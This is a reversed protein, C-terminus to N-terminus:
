YHLRKLQKELIMLFKLAREREKSSGDSRSQPMQSAQSFSMFNINNAEMDGMTQTNNVDQEDMNNIEENRAIDDAADALGEADNGNACDKRYVLCLDEYYSFAKYKFTAVKHSSKEAHVLKKNPDWGFGNTLIEHVIIQQALNTRWDNLEDSTKISTIPDGM